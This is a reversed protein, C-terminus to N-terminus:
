GAARVHQRGLGVAHRRQPHRRLPLLGGVRFGLEHGVRGAGACQPQHDHRRGLQGQFNYGWAWLTGDSRIALTHYGTREVRGEVHVPLRDAGADPQHSTTAGDGLQGYGNTGWAWLTGNRASRSPPVSGPAVSQWNTGAVIREPTTENTITGDGLEGASNDGWAWLSGDTHVVVTHNVGRGRGIALQPGCRGAQPDTPPPHDSQGHHRRGGRRLRRLGLGVVHRGHGDGDRPGRRLRPVELEDLQRGGPALQPQRPATAWSATSTSGWVWLTGDPGSPGPSASGAVGSRWDGTYGIQEPWLRKGGTTGDGIQGYTNDGWIWLSGDSRVAVGNAAGASVSTWNTAAGIQEPSTRNPPGATM